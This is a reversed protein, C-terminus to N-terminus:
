RGDSSNLCFSSIMLLDLTIVKLASFIEPNDFLGSFDKLAHTLELM